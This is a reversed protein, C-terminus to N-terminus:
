SESGIQEIDVFKAGVPIMRTYRTYYFLTEAAQDKSVGVMGNPKDDIIKMGECGGEDATWHKDDQELLPQDDPRVVEENWSERISCAHCSIFIRIVLHGYIFNNYFSM